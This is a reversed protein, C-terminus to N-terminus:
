AVQASMYNHRYPRHCQFKRIEGIGEKITRRRCVDPPNTRHSHQTIICSIWLGADQISALCNLWPRRIRVTYDRRERALRCPPCCQGPQIHNDSLFPATGYPSLRPLINYNLKPVILHLPPALASAASQEQSTVRAAEHRAATM